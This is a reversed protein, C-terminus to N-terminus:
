PRGWRRPIARALRTSLSEPSQALVARLRHDALLRQEEPSLAEASDASASLDHTVVAATPDAQFTRRFAPDTALLYATHALSM